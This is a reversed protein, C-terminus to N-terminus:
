THRPDHGNSLPPKRKFAEVFAEIAEKTFFNNVVGGEAGQKERAGHLELATELYRHRTGYDVTTRSATVKGEHQFFKIEKADLGEALKRTLAAVRLKPSAELLERIRAKVSESNLARCVTAAGSYGTEAALEKLTADPNKVRARALKNLRRSLGRQQKKGPKPGVDGPM